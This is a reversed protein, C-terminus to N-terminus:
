FPWWRLTWQREDVMLSGIIGDRTAIVCRSYIRSVGIDHPIVQNGAVFLLTGRERITGAHLARARCRAIKGDSTRM